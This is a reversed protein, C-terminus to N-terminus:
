EMEELKFCSMMATTSKAYIRFIDAPINVMSSAKQIAAELEMDSFAGSANASAAGSVMAMALMGTGSELINMYPEMAEFSRDVALQMNLTAQNIKKM